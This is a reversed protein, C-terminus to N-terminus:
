GERGRSGRKKGETEPPRIKSFRVNGESVEVIEGCNPCSLEEKEPHEEGWEDWSAFHVPEKPHHWWWGCRPCTIERKMQKKTM